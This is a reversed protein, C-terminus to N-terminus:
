EDACIRGLIPQGVMYLSLKLLWVKASKGGHFVVLASHLWGTWFLKSRQGITRPDHRRRNLEGRQLPDIM